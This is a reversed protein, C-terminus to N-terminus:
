KKLIRITDLNLILITGLLFITGHPDNPPWKPPWRPNRYFDTLSTITSVKIMSIYNLLLKLHFYTNRGVYINDSDKPPWKPPWKSNEHLGRNPRNTLIPMNVFTKLTM